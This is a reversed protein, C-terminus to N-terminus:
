HPPPQGSLSQRRRENKNDLVFDRADAAYRAADWLAQIRDRRLNRCWSDLYSVHQLEGNIDLHACLFALYLRFQHRIMRIM